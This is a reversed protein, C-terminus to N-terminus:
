FIIDFNELFLGAAAIYLETSICTCAQLFPYQLTYIRQPLSNHVVSIRPFLEWICVIIHLCIVSQTFRVPADGEDM